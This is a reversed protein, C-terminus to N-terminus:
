YVKFRKTKSPEEAYPIGSFTFYPKFHNTIVELGKIRGLDGATVEVTKQGEVFYAVASLGLLCTALGCFSNLHFQM